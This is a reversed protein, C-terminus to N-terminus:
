KDREKLKNQTSDTTLKRFLILHHTAGGEGVGAGCAGDVGDGCAGVGYGYLGDGYGYPSSTLKKYAFLTNM